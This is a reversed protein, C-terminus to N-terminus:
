SHERCAERGIEIARDGRGGVLELGLHHRPPPIEVLVGLEAVALNAGRFDDGVV